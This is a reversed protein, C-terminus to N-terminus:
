VSLWVVTNLPQCRLRPSAMLAATWLETSSAVHAAPSALLYMQKHPARHPRLTGGALLAIGPTSRQSQAPGILWRFVKKRYVTVWRSTNQNCYQFTLLYSLSLFVFFSIRGFLPLATLVWFTSSEPKTFEPSYCGPSSSILLPEADLSLSTM